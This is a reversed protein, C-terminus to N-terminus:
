GEGGLEGPESEDGDDTDLPAVAVYPQTEEDVPISDPHFDDRPDTM